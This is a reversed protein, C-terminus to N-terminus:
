THDQIHHESSIEGELYTIIDLFTSPYKQYIELRQTELYEHIDAIKGTMIEYYQHIYRIYKRHNYKTINNYIDAIKGPVDNYKM